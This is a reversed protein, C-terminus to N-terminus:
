DVLPNLLDNKRISRSNANEDVFKLAGEPDFAAWAYILMRYEERHEHRMPIENFASLVQSLNDESLEGLLQTLSAFRNVPNPDRKITDLERRLNNRNMGGVTSTTRAPGASVKGSGQDGGSLLGAGQQVSVSSSASDAGSKAKGIFFGGLGGAVATVVLVVWSKM